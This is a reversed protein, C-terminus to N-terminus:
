GMARIFKRKDLLPFKRHFLIKLLGRVPHGETLMMPLRMSDANLNIAPTTACEPAIIESATCEAESTNLLMMTMMPMWTDLLSESLSCGYPCSRKSHTAAIM